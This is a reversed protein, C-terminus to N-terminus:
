LGKIKKAKLVEQELKDTSYNVKYPVEMEDLEAKLADRRSAAGAAVEDDSPGKPRDEVSEAPFDYAYVADGAADDEPECHNLLGSIWKGRKPHKGKALEGALDESGIDLISGARRLIGRFPFSNIVCFKPM